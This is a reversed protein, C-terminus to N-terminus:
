ATPRGDHSAQPVAARERSGGNMGALSLLRKDAPASM